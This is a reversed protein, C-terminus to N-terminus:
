TIQFELELLKQSINLLMRQVVQFGVHALWKLKKGKEIKRKNVKRNSSSKLKEM